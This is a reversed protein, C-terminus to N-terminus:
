SDQEVGLVEPNKEMLVLCLFVWFEHGPLVKM